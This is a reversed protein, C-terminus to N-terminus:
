EKAVPINESVILNNEIESLKTDPDDLKVLFLGNKVSMAPM